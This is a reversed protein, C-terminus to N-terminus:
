SFISTIQKKQNKQLNITFRELESKNNGSTYEKEGMQTREEGSKKVRKNKKGISQKGERKEKKEKVFVLL